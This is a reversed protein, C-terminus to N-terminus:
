APEAVRACAASIAAIHRQDTGCCGGLVSLNPFARRLAAFERGLEDPNGDDLEEAADLEAHSCRSANARLGRLRQMWPADTSLRRAFHSPHACNIMYYAPAAGTLADVAEIAAGLPQGSPLNGDTEVTFSIVSPMGADRAALAIGAAEEHHTMTLASVLDAATDRFTRIQEGHYDRASAVTEHSTPSYGDGRPGITGSIVMPQAGQWESRLELMLEVAAHNAAALDKADHGLQRGWDASARWTTTEFVVGRDDRAAIAAYEAYDQKVIRRTQPDALLPYAAFLPLDIGKHFVLTTELGGDTLFLGGALQPLASRYLATM